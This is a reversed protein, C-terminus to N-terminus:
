NLTTESMASSPIGAVVLYRRRIAAIAFLPCAGLGDGLVIQALRLRGDRTYGVKTGTLQRAPPRVLLLRQPLLLRSLPRRPAGLDTWRMGSRKLRLQVLRKAEAEVAGSGIPLHQQRFLPYQV